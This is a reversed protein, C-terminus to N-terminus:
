VIEEAPAPLSAGRDLARRQSIVIDVENSLPLGHETLMYRLAVWAPGPIPIAGAEWRRVTRDSAVLLADAIEAQSLGLANRCRRFLEPETMPTPRLLRRAWHPNYSRAPEAYIPDDPGALTESIIKGM